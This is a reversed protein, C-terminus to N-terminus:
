APEVPPEVPADPVSSAIDEKATALASNNAKVQSTLALLQDASAGGAIQAELEAIKAEQADQIKKNADILAQFQAQENDITSQLTAIDTSQQDVQGKLDDFENAMTTLKTNNVILLDKIEHFHAEVKDFQKKSLGNAIVKVLAM